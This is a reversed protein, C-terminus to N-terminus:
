ADLYRYPHRSGALTLGQADGWGTAPESDLDATPQGQGSESNSTDAYLITCFRAPGASHAPADPEVHMSGTDSNSTAFHSPAEGFTAPLQSRIARESAIQPSHM